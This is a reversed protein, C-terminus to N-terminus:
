LGIGAATETELAVGTRLGRKVMWTCVVWANCRRGMRLTNPVRVEVAQPRLEGTFQIEFLARALKGEAFQKLGIPDSPACQFLDAAEHTVVEQLHNNKEIQVAKLTVKEIGEVDDCELAQAGHLALPELTYTKRECFYNARGCLHLGFQEIYLEREGKTRANVRVEDLQPSYVLVDDREPRFQLVHTEQQEVKPTRSYLGGHRILYCFEGDMKYVDVKATEKGRHNALFWPHAHPSQLARRSSHLGAM